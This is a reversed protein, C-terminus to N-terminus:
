FPALSVDHFNQFSIVIVDTIFLVKSFQNNEDVLIINCYLVKKFKSTLLLTYFITPIYASSSRKWKICGPVNVQVLSM